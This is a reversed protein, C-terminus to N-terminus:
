EDFVTNGNVEKESDSDPETNTFELDPHFITNNIFCKYACQELLVQPCYRIDNENDKMNFFISQIQLLARCTYKINERPTVISKGDERAHIMM